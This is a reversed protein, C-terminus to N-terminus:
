SLHLKEQLIDLCRKALNHYHFHARTHTVAHEGMNERLSDDTLLALTFKALDDVNARFALTKPKVFQVKLPQKKFGMEKNVWEETRDVTSAVKALFGTKGHVITEKPGMADISIVPTGCAMAELQIMGFGELRSPAAYIDCANLLYPMFQEHTFDDELYIVKSKDLGVEEIVALEEEHHNRARGSNTSKCVYKWNPYDKNILALARIMEQAGKSTVDGGITLIMKENERVGFMKRIERVGAHSKPLPKFVNPDFGVHLVEFNKTEVGDRRYTEKVWASTTFVLPLASLESQYNAVWGDALLWPVPQLGYKQPDTILTPTDVWWGIGLVVDPQFTKYLWEREKKRQSYHAPLCEVGHEKLGRILLEGQTSM